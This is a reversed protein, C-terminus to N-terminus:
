RALIYTHLRCAAILSSAARIRYMHPGRPPSRGGGGGLSGKSPAVSSADDDSFHSVPSLPQSIAASLRAYGGDDGSARGEGGGAVLSYRPPSASGDTPSGAQSSQVVSAGLYAGAQARKLERVARSDKVTDFRKGKGGLRLNRDASVGLSVRPLSDTEEQAVSWDVLTTIEVSKTPAAMDFRGGPPRFSGRM